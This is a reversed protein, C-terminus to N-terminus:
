FRDHLAFRTRRVRQQRWPADPIDGAGPGIRWLDACRRQLQAACGEDAIRVTMGASQSFSAEGAYEDHGCRLLLCPLRTSRDPLNDAHRRAALIDPHDFTVM